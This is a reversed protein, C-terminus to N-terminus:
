LHFFVSVKVLTPGPKLPAATNVLQTPTVAPRSAPLENTSIVKVLDTTAQTSASFAQLLSPLLFLRIVSYLGTDSNFRSSSMCAYMFLLTVLEPDSRCCPTPYHQNFQLPCRQCKAKGQLHSLVSPNRAQQSNRHCLMAVTKM